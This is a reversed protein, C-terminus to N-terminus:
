TLSTFRLTVQSFASVEADYNKQQRRWLKHMDEGYICMCNVQKILKAYPHCARM